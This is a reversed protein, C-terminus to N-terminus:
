LEINRGTDPDRELHLDVGALPSEALFRALSRPQEARRALREFEGEEILVVAEKGQRTVM